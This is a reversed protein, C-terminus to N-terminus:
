SVEPPKSTPQSWTQQSKTHSAVKRLTRFTLNASRDDPLLSESPHRVRLARSTDHQRRIIMIDSIKIYRTITYVVVLKRQRAQLKLTGHETSKVLYRKHVIGIQGLIRGHDIGLTYETNQLDSLSDETCSTKRKLNVITFHGICLLDIPLCETGRTTCCVEDFHADTTTNMLNKNTLHPGSLRSESPDKDTTNKSVHSHATPLKRNTKGEKDCTDNGTNNASQEMKM